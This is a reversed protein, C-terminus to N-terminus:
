EGEGHPLSPIPEAARLENIRCLAQLECTQCTKSGEKPDVKAYGQYFQQGLNNLVKEWYQVLASWSQHNHEDKLYAFTAAGPIDIQENAVLGKFQKSDSRIQAFLLGAVPQQNTVCYLPLQPENPRDGLWDSITSIGTKYDIILLEGNPLQDIRDVRLTLPIGAFTITIVQEIAKVIFPPRKKEVELWDNLLRALRMKEIATFRAKFTLPRKKIFQALAADIGHNVVNLQEQETFSLLQQQSGITNWIAELSKHLLSGREQLSLGAEPWELAKAGLRFRAFARFPCAAQDRFIGAGGSIKKAIQMPPANEDTLLEIKASALILEAYSQYSPLQLDSLNLPTLAQILPSPRLTRDDLSQPYSLIVNHASHTLRKTLERCYHLERQNSSHPLKLEQQLPYPIFPNPNPSPPWAQDHLGMIWLHQFSLGAAELIGLIQVPVVPSKPQFEQSAAIQKLQTLAAGHKLPSSVISLQAFTSLLSSWGEILQHETSDLTREGPWKFAILYESFVSAWQHPLLLKDQYKQQLKLYASLLEAFKTLNSKKAFILIQQLSLHPEGYSRLHADFRARSTLEEEAWGLYPSRLLTGLDTLSVENDLSLLLLATHLLSFDKFKVGASINFPLPSQDYNPLIAEPAFVETFTAIVESRLETLNPVVCAVSEAGLQWQQRAWRAMANIEASTDSLGLRHIKPAPYLCNVNQLKVGQASLANFLNQYQPSLEDFGVLFLRKSRQSGKNKTIQQALWDPLSTADLRHNARCYDQFHKAWTQWVRTDETHDFSTPSAPDIQWQKSLQWAQQAMKATAGVHLLLESAKSTRVIYEWIFQEQLPTLLTLPEAKGGVQIEEWCRELWSTLPLIDPNQWSQQNAQQQLRDYQKRLSAALRRNPTLVTDTPLLGSLFQQYM